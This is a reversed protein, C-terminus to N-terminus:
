RVEQRSRSYSGFVPSFPWSLEIRVRSGAMPGCPHLLGAILRAEAHNSQAASRSRV